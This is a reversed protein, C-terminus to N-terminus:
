KGGTKNLNNGIVEGFVEKPLHGSPYKEILQNLLGINTVHNFMVYILVCMLIIVILWHAEKAIIYNLALIVVGGIIMGIHLGFKEWCIRLLPNLEIMKYPKEPQWAKYKNVYYYTLLLDALCLSMVLIIVVFRIKNM